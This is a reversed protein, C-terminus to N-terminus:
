IGPTLAIRIRFPAAPTAQSSEISVDFTRLANGMGSPFIPTWGDLSYEGLVETIEDSGSQRTFKRDIALGQRHKILDAESQTQERLNSCVVFSTPVLAKVPFSLDSKSQWAQMSLGHVHMDRQPTPMEVPQFDVLTINLRGIVQLAFRELDAYDGEDLDADVPIPSDVLSSARPHLYTCVIENEPFEFLMAKYSVSWCEDRCTYCLVVIGASKEALTPYLAVPDVAGPRSHSLDWMMLISVDDPCDSQPVNFLMCHSPLRVPGQFRSLADMARVLDERSEYLTANTPVVCRESRSLAEAALDYLELNTEDADPAGNRAMKAMLLATDFQSLDTFKAQFSTATMWNFPLLIQSRYHGGIRGVGVHLIRKGESLPMYRNEALLLLKQTRDAFSYIVSAVSRFDIHRQASTVEGTRSVGLYPYPDFGDPMANPMVVEVKSAFRDAGLDLVYGVLGSGAPQHKSHDPYVFFRGPGPEFPAFNEALFPPVESTVDWVHLVGPEALQNQFFGREYELTLRQVPLPLQKVSVTSRVEFALRSLVCGAPGLRVILNQETAASLALYFAPRLKM